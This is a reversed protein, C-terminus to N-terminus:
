GYQTQEELEIRHKQLTDKACFLNYTNGDENFTSTYMSTVKRSFFGEKMRTRKLPLTLSSALQSM